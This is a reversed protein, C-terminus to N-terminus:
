RETGEVGGQLLSGELSLPELNDHVGPQISDLLHM